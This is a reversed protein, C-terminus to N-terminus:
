TPETTSRTADNPDDVDDTPSCARRPLHPLAPATHPGRPTGRANRLIRAAIRPRFLTPPPRLLGAVELLVRAVAPDHEAAHQARALYANVARLPVPRRGDIEPLALDAGLALRWAPDITRAAARFFRRALHRHGSALCRRLALAELAAVTMGQGYVPNFSCLADGFVLLGDPFRQLREYRRRLNSPFRHAVPDDLPTAAALDAAVDAPAVHRMFATFGDPDTPPRRHGYGYLTLVWRDHEERFLGMGRPQGPAPSVMVIKDGGIADPPLRLHRSVYTIDIQLHEEPPAPYGLAELWAIARGARGSADVVLDAPLTEEASGDTRRLIHVGTIRDGRETARPGVVDCSEVIDVNPLAQVRERVHGELFPRSVSLGPPGIPDRCLPHGAMVFRMETLMGVVPVGHAVLDRTLGPFLEDLATTGRPLLGHAHRGQPVGRRDEGPAPLRDREVVTVQRHTDALARAALLGGMGAGIVIARPPGM